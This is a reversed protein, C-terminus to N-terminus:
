VLGYEPPSHMLANAEYVKLLSALILDIQVTNIKVNNAEERDLFEQIREIMEKLAITYLNFFFRHHEYNDLRVELDERTEILNKLYNKLVILDEKLYDLPNKPDLDNVSMVYSSRKEYYVVDKFEAVDFLRKKIVHLLSSIDDPVITKLALELNHHDSKEM